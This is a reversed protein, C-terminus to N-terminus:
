GDREWALLWAAASAAAMKAPASASTDVGGSGAVVEATARGEETSISDGTARGSCTFVAGRSGVSSDVLCSTGLAGEGGTGATETGAGGGGVDVAIRCAQVRQSATKSISM